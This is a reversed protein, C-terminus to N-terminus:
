KRHFAFGGGGRRKAEYMASDAKNVLVDGTEGDRPFLSVGVAARVRVKTGMVPFPAEFADVVDKAVVRAGEGGELDPLIVGFEDGGLRAVTDSARIRGLIREAAERLIMDGALHGHNDNVAKFGDLDVFLVAMERGYRGSRVVLQNLRDFFLFRNPINTLLDYTARHELARESEKRETIDNLVGEIYLPDGAPGRALRSSESVWIIRGDKRRAEFEFGNLEGSRHLEKLLFERDEPNKYLQSPIDVMEETLALPSEWGLIRALAPNVELFRGTVSAQFIGEVANEFITRYKEEARRLARETTRRMEVEQELEARKRYLELFVRVKTQLAYPDFPKFLYDVAGAEYGLRVHEEDQSLATVFIVPTRSDPKAERMARATEFGNMGPMQVDMLVVAYSHDRFLDLARRGSSVAVVEVEERELITQFLILNTENDDVVLIKPHEVTM